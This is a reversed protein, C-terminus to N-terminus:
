SQAIRHAAPQGSNELEAGVEQLLKKHDAHLQEKLQDLQVQSLTAM